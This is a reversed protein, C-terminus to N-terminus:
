EKIDIIHVPNLYLHDIKQSDVHSLLRQITSADMGKSTCIVDQSCLNHNLSPVTQRVDMMM